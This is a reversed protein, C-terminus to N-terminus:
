DLKRIVPISIIRQSLLFSWLVNCILSVPAYEACIDISAVFNAVEDVSWNKFDDGLSPSESQARKPGGSSSGSSSCKTRSKKLPTAGASLDLPSLADRRKTKTPQVHKLLNQNEDDAANKLLAVLAQTATMDMIPPFLTRNLLPNLLTAYDPKPMSQDNEKSPPRQPISPIQPMNPLQPINPIQPMNPMQPMM